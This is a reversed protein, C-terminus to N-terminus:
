SSEENKVQVVISSNKNVVDFDEAGELYIVEEADSLKLWADISWWAQYSAGRFMADAQRESDSPLQLDNLGHSTEDNNESDKM